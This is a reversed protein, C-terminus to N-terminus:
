TNTAEFESHDDPSGANRTSSRTADRVLPTTKRYIKVRLHQQTLQLSGRRSNHSPVQLNPNVLSGRRSQAQVEEVASILDAITKKEQLEM